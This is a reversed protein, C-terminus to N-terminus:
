RKRKGRNRIIGSRTPTVAVEAFDSDRPANRYELKVKQDRTPV